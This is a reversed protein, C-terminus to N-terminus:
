RGWIELGDWVPSATRDWDYAGARSAVRRSAVRAKHIAASDGDLAGPLTDCLARLRRVMLRCPAVRSNMTPDRDPGRM